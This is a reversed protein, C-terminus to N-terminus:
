LIVAPLVAKVVTGVIDGIISGGQVTAMEENMLERISETQQFTNTTTM